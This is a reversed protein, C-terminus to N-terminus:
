GALQARHKLCAPSRGNNAGREASGYPHRNGGRRTPADPCGHRVAPRAPWLLWVGGIMVTAVCAAAAWRWLPLVKGEHRMLGGKDPYPLPDEELKLAPDYLTLEEALYPHQAAFAEVAAREEATLEGECYRYFYEEYNDTTIIM